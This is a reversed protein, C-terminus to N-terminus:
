SLERRRLNAARALPEQCQPLWPKVRCVPPFDDDDDSPPTIYVRALVEATAVLNDSDTVQLAVRRTLTDGVEAGTLNFRFATTEANPSVVVADGRWAIQLPPRLDETRLSYTRTLSETGEEVSIQTAGTITVDPSRPITVFSGGAFIGGSSVELRSYSIVVKQGNPIFIEKPILMAAGCGAGANAVPTDISAIIIREVLFVIGLPRFVILFLGTLFNLWSTDVDLDAASSCTVQGGSLSLTDTTTLQFDVDPWPREDFGDIRTVIRNPSELNVSFGTLHIPGSPDATGNGNLRKPTANWADFAQRRILASNIFFTLSEGSGLINLRELGRNRAQDDQSNVVPRLWIGIRQTGNLCLTRVDANPTIAQRVASVIATNLEAPLCFAIQFAIDPTSVLPPPPPLPDDDPDPDGDDDDDIPLRAAEIPEQSSHSGRLQVIPRSPNAILADESLKTQASEDGTKM